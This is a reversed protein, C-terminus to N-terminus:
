RLLGVNRYYGVTRRLGEAYGVAPRWPLDNPIRNSVYKTRGTLARVRNITLPFPRRIIRSAIEMTGGLAYAFPPPITIRPRLVGLADAAASIFEDLRCPDNIHIVGGPDAEMAVICAAAVDAAYVYNACARRSFYVFRGNEITRLLALFSNRPGAEVREGFVNTPRLVTVRSGTRRGFDLALTEAELKTAEYENTPRCPADEAIREGSVPGIVGISSVVILQKVAPSLGALLNKMGQVNTIRMQRRDLLEGAAHIVADCQDIASAISAADRLDGVRVESIGPITQRRSFAIPHEGRAVLQHIVHRGILGSAGTVLIRRAM